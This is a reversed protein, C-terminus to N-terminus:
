PPLFQTCVGATIFLANPASLLEKLWLAYPDLKRAPLGVGCCLLEPQVLASEPDQPPRPAPLLSPPSQHLVSTCHLLMDQM